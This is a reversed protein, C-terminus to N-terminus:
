NDEALLSILADRTLFHQCPGGTSYFAPTLYSHHNPCHVSSWSFFTPLKFLVQQLCPFDLLGKFMLQLIQIGLVLRGFLNDILDLMCDLYHKNNDTRDCKREVRNRVSDLSYWPCGGAISCRAESTRTMGPLGNRLAILFWLFMRAMLVIIHGHSIAENPLFKASQSLTSKAHQELM